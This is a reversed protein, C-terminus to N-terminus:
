MGLGTSQNLTFAIAMMNNNVAEKGWVVDRTWGYVNEFPIIGYYLRVSVMTNPDTATASPFPATSPLPPLAVFLANDSIVAGFKCSPLFQFATGAPIPAGVNQNMNGPTACLPPDITITVHGSGDSAAPALVNVQVPLTSPAHGTFTLYSPAPHSNNALFQGKDFIAVALPDSANAGALTIQTVNNWTPDNVSLLTLGLASQGCTGAIHVPLLNSVFFEAGDWNGLMWSQYQEENRDIVFQNAMSSVIAPIAQLDLYVKLIGPASSYARFNALMQAIQQASTIPTSGNGYFRYPTTECVTAVDREVKSALEQMAANGCRIQYEDLNNFIIQEATGAFSVNAQKNVTLTRANQQISQFDVVLSEQSVFRPPVEFNVSAGLNGPFNEPNKFKTNANAVFPSCNEFIALDAMNWTVVQQLINQPFSM